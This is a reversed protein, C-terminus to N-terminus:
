TLAQLNRITLSGARVFVDMADGETEVGEEAPDGAANAGAGGVRAILVTLAELMFVM